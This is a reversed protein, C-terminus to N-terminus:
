AIIAYGTIHIAAHLHRDRALYQTYLMFSARVPCNICAVRKGSDFAGSTTNSFEFAQVTLNMMFLSVHLDATINEFNRLTRNVECGFSQNLPVKGVDFLRDLARASSVNKAPPPPFLSLTTSM